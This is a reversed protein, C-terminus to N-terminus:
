QGEKEVQRLHAQFQRDAKIAQMLATLYDLQEDSLSKYMQLLEEMSRGEHRDKEKGRILMDLSVGLADALLCLTEPDPANRGSSYNWVAAKTLGTKEALEIATLGKEDMIKKLAIVM